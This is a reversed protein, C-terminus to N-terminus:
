APIITTVTGDARKAKLAGGQSFLAYGTAPTPPESGDPVLNQDVYGKRAFQNAFAPDTGPGLPNTDIFWVEGSVQQSVGTKAVYKTAADARDGHPDSAAAHASVKATAGAQTELQATDVIGHVATTDVAHTAIAADTYAQANAESGPPGQPGQPGAPGQPGPPGTVLLYEGAAPATPALDALEVTGLSAPLLLPYSRGPADYPRETVRYTWGTPTCGAADSALVTLTLVGNVWETTAEGMVILGYQASTVAPVEPTLTLRGRMPGGDPHARSDTITVTQLGPPFPM